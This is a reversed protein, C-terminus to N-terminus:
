KEIVAMVDDASLVLYKKSVGNEKLEIEEKGWKKFIVEQGPTIDITQRSGNELIKGPGVAIVMGRDPTEKDATDPIIIGSATTTEKAQPEVIIHSGLPKLKM